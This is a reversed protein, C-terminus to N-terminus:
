RPARRKATRRFAGCDIRLPGDCFIVNSKALLPALDPRTKAPRLRRDPMIASALARHCPWDPAAPIRPIIHLRAFTVAACVRLKGTLGTGAGRAAAEASIEEETTGGPVPAPVQVRPRRVVVLLVAIAALLTLVGAVGALWHRASRM